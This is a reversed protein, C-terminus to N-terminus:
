VSSSSSWELLAMLANKPACQKQYWETFVADFTIPRKMKKYVEQHLFVVAPVHTPPIEHLTKTKLVNVNHYSQLVQGLWTRVALRCHRFMIKHKPFLRVYEQQMTTSEESKEISLYRHLIEPQMNRLRMRSFYTPHYLETRHSEAASVDFQDVGPFYAWLDAYAGQYPLCVEFPFHRLVRAMVYVSPISTVRNDPGVSFVDTLYLRTPETLTMHIHYIFQVPLLTMLLESCTEFFLQRVTKGDEEFIETGGVGGLETSMEWGSGSLRPDYFWQIAFVNDLHPTVTMTAADIFPYLDQFRSSSIRTTPEPFSSLVRESEPDLLQQRRRRCDRTKRYELGRNSRIVDNMM